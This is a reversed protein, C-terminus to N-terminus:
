KKGANLVEQWAKLESWKGQAALASQAAWTEPNHIQFRKGAADLMEQLRTVATAALEEFTWIGAENCLQAIKPGIGEVITLDDKDAASGVRRSVESSVITQKSMGETSLSRKGKFSGGESSFSASSTKTGSTENIDHIEASLSIRGVNGLEIDMSSADSGSTSSTYSAFSQGTSSIANVTEYHRPVPIDVVVEHIEDIFNARQIHHHVPVEIDQVHEYIVEVLNVKQVRTNVPVDIIEEQIREILNARQKTHNVAVDVVEEYHNEILNVRQTTHTVPVDVVNEQHNEVVNVRQSTHNVAVEVVEESHNEVLNVRQTTHTVPVDVVNEQHNEVV